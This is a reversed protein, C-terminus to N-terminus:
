FYIEDIDTFNIEEGNAFTITGSVHNQDFTLVNGDVGSTIQYTAGNDLNLTWNSGMEGPGSGSIGDLHLSDTWNGNGGSITDNGEGYDYFFSDDGKGGILTDDGTGGMLIDNGDDGYLTDNGSDGSLTDDGKGGYLTDDGQEGFITDNGLNSGRITDNGSGGKIADVDTFSVNRFDWNNDADGGQITVSDSGDGLTSGQINEISNSNNFTDGLDISKVNDNIILTDEGSGGKFTDIGDNKNYIFTDDGSGGQLVDNGAGGILTDNGGDGYLTDNGDGGYLTDDSGGGRLLDDGKDGYIVDNNTDSGRITDNGGGGHISDVDTFTVNRFDWNNDENGGQITVSDSGDGQTSGQIAEVGNNFKEGLNISNVNDNIVLTDYGAGGNYTDIGDNKNYIFTDDGAGGQLNDNGSGGIITDNGDDGYITDNGSGGYLTDDGGGGRLTDNGGDGYIVDHNTNSGLISDDGGGGKISDVDTFTVNRFDWNNAENGGQITVSDSGDGQTSGQITEISNGSNFKEGLNISKVADTVILTDNGSGGKYTDVGDNKNYIFTDEGAGGQLNDNGKGGVITDNGADGLVTDDGDGGYLTDDGNGGRITDDGKDGYVIDDGDKAYVKDDGSKAYIEDAENTGQIVDNQSTGEITNLPTPPPPPPPEEGGEEGGPDQNSDEGAQPTATAAENPAAIAAEEQLHDAIIKARQFDSNDPINANTNAEGAGGIQPITNQYTNVESSSQIFVVENAHYDVARIRVPSYDQAPLQSGSFVEGLPDSQFLIEPNHTTSHTPYSTSLYTNDTYSANNVGGREFAYGAVKTNGVNITALQDFHSASVLPNLKVNLNQWLTSSGTQASPLISVDYM